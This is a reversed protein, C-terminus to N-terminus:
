CLDLTQQLKMPKPSTKTYALDLMSLRNVTLNLETLTQPLEVSDIMSSSSILDLIKSLSSDEDINPVVMSVKEKEAITLNEFLNVQVGSM